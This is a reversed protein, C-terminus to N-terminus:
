ANTNNLNTTAPAVATIYGAGMSKLIRACENMTSGTTIVDDCLIIKNESLYIDSPLFMGKVNEEREKKSLAHQVITNEKKILADVVPINLKQAIFEAIEFSQNYGRIRKKSKSMPVPVIMDYIKGSAIIRESLKEGYFQAANIGNKEKLALISEKVIGGYAFLVHADDYFLSKDCM